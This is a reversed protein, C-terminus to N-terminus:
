TIPETEPLAANAFTPNNRFGQVAAAAQAATNASGASGFLKSASTFGALGTGVNTLDPAKTTTSLNPARAAGSLAPQFGGLNNLLNAFAAQQGQTILSGYQGAASGLAAQRGRTVQGGGAYGLRRSIASSADSYTKRLTSLQGLVQPFIEATSGKAQARLRNLADFLSGVQLPVGAIALERGRKLVDENSILAAPDNLADSPGGSSTSGVSGGGDTGGEGGSNNGSDAADSSGMGSDAGSSDAEQQCKYGYLIRDLLM